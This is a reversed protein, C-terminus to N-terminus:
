VARRGNAQAPSPAWCARRRVDTRSFAAAVDTGDDNAAWSPTASPSSASACSRMFSSLSRTRSLSALRLLAADMAAPRLIALPLPELAWTEAVAPPLCRVRTSEEAPNCRGRACACLSLLSRMSARLQELLIAPYTASFALTQKRAPLSTLLYGLTEEFGADCLKDAEDLVLLRVRSAVLAECLLLGVLRGPTGCAM